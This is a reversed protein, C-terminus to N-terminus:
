GHRTENSLIAVWLIAKFDRFICSCDRFMVVLTGFSLLFERIIDFTGISLRLSDQHM